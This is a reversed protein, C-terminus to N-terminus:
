QETIKYEWHVEYGILEIDGSIGKDESKEYILDQIDTLIDSMLVHADGSAETSTTITIVLEKIM